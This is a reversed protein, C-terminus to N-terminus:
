SKVLSAYYPVKETFAEEGLDELIQSMYPGLQPTMDRADIVDDCHECVLKGTVIHGCTEHIIQLPSGEPAEWKDGWAMMTIFIPYIDRGKQTLRYEYRRGKAGYSVKELIGNTVLGKLRTSLLHRSIGLKSEFEDFRRVRMFCERLIMLTWRDGFIALTRAISCPFTDLQTEKM